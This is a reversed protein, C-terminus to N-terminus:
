EDPEFERLLQYAEWDEDDWDEDDGLMERVLIDFSRELKRELDVQNKTNKTRKLRKMLRAWNETEDALTGM